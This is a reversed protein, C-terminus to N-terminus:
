LEIIQDFYVSVAYRKICGDLNSDSQRGMLAKWNKNKSAAMDEQNKMRLGGAQIESWSCITNYLNNQFYQFEGNHNRITGNKELYDFSTSALLDARGHKYYDQRNIEIWHNMLYDKEHDTLDENFVVNRQFRDMILIRNEDTLFSKGADPQPVNGEAQKKIRGHSQLVRSASLGTFSKFSDMKEDLRGAALAEFSTQLEDLENYGHNQRLFNFAIQAKDEQCMPFGCLSCIYNVTVRFDNYSCDKIKM